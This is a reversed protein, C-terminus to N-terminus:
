KAAREIWVSLWNFRKDQTPHQESKVLYWTDLVQIKPRAKGTGDTVVDLGHILANYASEKLITMATPDKFWLDMAKMGEAMEDATIRARASRPQGRKPALEAERERAKQLFESLKAVQKESLPRGHAVLSSVSQVFGHEWADPKWSQIEVLEQILRAHDNDVASIRERIDKRAKKIGKPTPEWEPM